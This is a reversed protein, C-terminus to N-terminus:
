LLEKPFKDYPILWYHKGSDDHTKISLSDFLKYVGSPQDCLLTEARIGQQEFGIIGICNAYMEAANEASLLEGMVIKTNESQQYINSAAKLQNMIMKKTIDKCLKGTMTYEVEREFCKFGEAHMDNIASMITMGKFRIGDLLHKADERTVAYSHSKYDDYVACLIKDAIYQSFMDPAIPVNSLFEGACFYEYKPGLKSEEAVAAAEPAEKTLLRVTQSMEGAVKLTESDLECLAVTLLTPRLSAVTHKPNDAMHFIVTVDEILAYCLECLLM